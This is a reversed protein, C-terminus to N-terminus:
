RSISPSKVNLIQHVSQDKPALSHRQSDQLSSPDSEDESFNIITARKKKGSRRRVKEANIQLTIDTKPEYKTVHNSSSNLHATTSFLNQQKGVTLADLSSDDYKINFLITELGAAMQPLTSSIEEDSMFSDKEYYTRLLIADNIMHTLHKQLSRENLACRLWARGRGTDTSINKLKNIREIEDNPLHNKVFEWFNAVPPQVGSYVQKFTSFASSNQQKLRHQFANELQSCLCSVWSSSETVLENKGSLYVQCAKIADLLKQHLIEKENKDTM